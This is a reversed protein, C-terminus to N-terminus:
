WPIESRDMPASSGVGISSLMKRKYKEAEVETLKGSLVAFDLEEPLYFEELPKKDEKITKRQQTRVVLMIALAMVLDDHAGPEAAWRVDPGHKAKQRTFAMMEKLTEVDNILNMHEETWEQLHSLIMQRNEETTRFGYKPEVSMDMREPHADRRYIRTYKMEQLKELAYADFNIEPAVLANNYHMLLGIIQYICVRPM